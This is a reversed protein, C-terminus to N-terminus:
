DLKTVILKNSNFDHHENYNVYGLQNTLLETNGLAFPKTNRHHHGYVWYDIGSNEIFYDLDTAFAENIASNKYEEPYHQFTPVHHTVVISKECQNDKIAEKLFELNEEFLRTSHSTTFLKGEDKIVRYDNLGNQIYWAKEESIPTWLTSFILSTNGHHATNNNLLYVNHEIKEMFKGTRNLLEGGYYEHNGPVWYTFEFLDSCYKFFDRHEDILHFPVIDGALLLIDGVPILPNKQIFERNTPFELHLDSAYQFKM